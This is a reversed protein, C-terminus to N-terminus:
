MFNSCVLSGNYMWKMKQESLRWVLWVIYMDHLQPASYYFFIFIIVNELITHKSHHVTRPTPTNNPELMGEFNPLKLLASGFDRKWPFVDM